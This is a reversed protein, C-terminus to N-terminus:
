LSAIGGFTHSTRACPPTDSGATLKGVDVWDATAELGVAANLGTVAGLGTVADLDTVADLGAAADLGTM